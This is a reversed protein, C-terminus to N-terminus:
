PMGVKASLHEHTDIRFIMGMMEKGAESQRRLDYEFLFKRTWDYGGATDSPVGWYFGARNHKQKGRKCFFLM